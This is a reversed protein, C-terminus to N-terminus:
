DSEARALGIVVPAAGTLFPLRTANRAAPLAAAVAAVDLGDSGCLAHLLEVSLRDCDRDTVDWLFGVALPAGALVYMDAASDSPATAHAHQVPGVAPRASSCGLLLAAARVGGRARAVLTRNVIAEGAGHGAYIYADSSSLAALVRAPPPAPAGEASLLAREAGTAFVLAALPGALAEATRPLDGAPNVVWAVGRSPLAGLSSPALAAGHAILTSWVRVATPPPTPPPARASVAAVSAFTRLALGGVRPIADHSVRTAGATTSGWVAAEWPFRAAEGSLVLVPARLPSLSTKVLAALSACLAKLRDDLTHRAAWWAAKAADSTAASSSASSASNARSRAGTRSSTGGAVAGAGGSSSTAASGSLSPGGAAAAEATAATTVAASAGAAALIARQEGVAAGLARGGLPAVVISYALCDSSTTALLLDLSLPELALAARPWPLKAPVPASPPARTHAASFLAAIRAIGDLEDVVLRVVCRSCAAAGAHPACGGAPLRLALLRTAAAAGQFSAPTPAGSADAAADAEADVGGRATDDVGAAIRSRLIRLSAAQSSLGISLFLALSAERSDTASLPSRGSKATAASFLKLADSLDTAPPAFVAGADLARPSPASAARPARLSTLSVVAARATARARVWDGACAAAAACEYSGDRIDSPSPQESLLRAARALANGVAAGIAPTLAAMAIGGAAAGRLADRTSRLAGLRSSACEDNSATADAPACGDLRAAREVSAAARADALACVLASSPSTAAGASLPAPAQAVNSDACLAASERAAATAIVALSPQTLAAAVAGGVGVTSANMASERWAWWARAPEGRAGWASAAAALALTGLTAEGVVGGPLTLRSLASREVRPRSAASRAWSGAAIAEHAAVADTCAASAGLGGRAIAAAGSHALADTLSAIYRRASRPLAASARDGVDLAGHVSSSATELATLHTDYSDSSATCAFAAVCANALARISSRLPQSVAASDIRAALSAALFPLPHPATLPRALAAVCAAALEADSADATPVRAIAADTLETIAAACAVIAETPSRCSCPSCLSALTISRSVAAADSATIGGAAVAAAALARPACALCAARSSADATASTAGMGLVASPTGDEKESLEDAESEDSANAAADSDRVIADAPAARVERAAARATSTAVASMVAASSRAAELALLAADAKRLVEGDTRAVGAICVLWLAATSSVADRSLRSTSTVARVGLVGVVRVFAISAITCLTKTTFKASKTAFAGSVAAAASSRATALARGVDAARVRADAAAAAANATTQIPAIAAALAPHRVAAAAMGEVLVVLARAAAAAPASQAPALASQTPPPAAVAAALSADDVSDAGDAVAATFPIGVAVELAADALAAAANQVGRSPGDCLSALARTTSLHAADVSETLLATSSSGDAAAAITASALWVKWASIEAHLLTAAAAAFPAGADGDLAATALPVAASHLATTAAEVIALGSSGGLASAAAAVSAAHAAARKLHHLGDAGALSLAAAAVGAADALVPVSATTTSASANLRAAVLLAEARRLAKSSPQSAVQAVVAASKVKSAGSTGSSGAAPGAAAPGQVGAAALHVRVLRARLAVVFAAAAAAVAPRGDTAAARAAAAREIVDAGEGAGPDASSMGLAARAVALSAQELLLWWDSSPASAANSGGSTKGQPPTFGVDLGVFVAPYQALLPATGTADAASSSGDLARPPASVRAPAGRVAKAPAAKGPGAKTAVGVIPPPTHARTVSPAAAAAPAAAVGETDAAIKTALSAWGLAAAPREFAWELFRELVAVVRRASAGSSALPATKHTAAAVLARTAIAGEAVAAAWAPSPARGDCLAADSSSEATAGSAAIISDLAGEANAVASGLAGDGCRSAYASLGRAVSAAGTADGARRAAAAYQFAWVFFGEHLHIPTPGIDGWASSPKSEWPFPFAARVATAIRAFHVVESRVSAHRGGFPMDWAAGGVALNDEFSPQAPPVADDASEGSNRRGRAAAARSATLVKGLVAREDSSSSATACLWELATTRLELSLARFRLAADASRWLTSHVGSIASSVAAALAAVDTSSPAPAAATGCNGGGCSKVLRALSSVWSSLRSLAAPLSQSIAQTAPSLMDGDGGGRLGDADADVDVAYQEALAGVARALLAGAGLVLRAAEASATASASPMDACAAALAQSLMSVTNRTSVADRLSAAAAVPRADPAGGGLCQLACGLLVLAPLVAGSALLAGAAQLAAREAFLSPPKPTRVLLASAGAAAAYLHSAPARPVKTAAFVLKCIDAPPPTASLFADVASVSELAADVSM